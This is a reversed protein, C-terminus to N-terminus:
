KATCHIKIQMATIAHCLNMQLQLADAKDKHVHINYMYVYFFNCAKRAINKECKMGAGGFKDVGKGHSDIWKCVNM